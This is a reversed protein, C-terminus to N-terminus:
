RSVASLAIKLHLYPKPGRRSCLEELKRVRLRLGWEAGNERSVRYLERWEGAGTMGVEGPAWSVPLRSLPSKM